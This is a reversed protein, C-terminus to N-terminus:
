FCHKCAENLCSPCYPRVTVCMYCITERVCTTGQHASLVPLDGGPVQDEHGQGPPGAQHSSGVIFM